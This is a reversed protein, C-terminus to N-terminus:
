ESGVMLIVTQSQEDAITRVPKQHNRMMLEKYNMDIGRTVLEWDSPLPQDPYAMKFGARVAILLPQTIELTIQMTTEKITQRGMEM